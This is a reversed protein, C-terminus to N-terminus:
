HGHDSHLTAWTYVLGVLGAGASVILPTYSGLRAAIQTAGPGGLGYYIYGTLGAVVTGLLVRIGGTVSMTVSLGVSFALAAMLSLGFLSVVFDMTDLRGAPEDEAVSPQRTDGTEGDPLNTSADPPDGSGALPALAVSTSFTDGPAEAVPPVAATPTASALASDTSQAQQASDVVVIQFTVSRMANVSSATIQIRGPRSPQLSTFAIGDAAASTQRTQLNESLFMVTFEVPTGDPVRNGNRDVIPSTRLVLRDGVEVTLTDSTTLSNTPLDGNLSDLELLITQLPDPATMELIDYGVAPLSIPLAGPLATEQFLARAVADVYPPTHSYVAYYATFKSIETASLYVPAAMAMVVLEAREVFAAETELLDRLIASSEVGPSVDLMVFVIWDVDRLVEAIRRNTRFQYDEASAGEFTGHLYNQLQEFSFSVVQEPQIQAGAYPGYMREIAVELANVSIIPSAACYSCQQELRVDTFIVITDNRAPPAPLSQRRPAVLTVGQQAIAYLQATSQGVTNINTAPAQVNELSLDGNYLALKLSLIRELSQDVRARFVPDEEYQEAFFEIVDIVNEFQDEGPTPGFDTLYLLDNGALFAERAVQRHPFPTLNYHRRISRTGLPSSVVLGTERWTRFMDLRFLQDAAQEDICIPRTISRINEGQYRINACQIGDARMLPDQAGGTVAHYPILDFKRLEEVARPLVPIEQDPKTDALGLGPFDQAIVAIRGKSGEHVGAVYAQGMEGVWYPEGGFSNVGLDLTRETPLRQYVDLAPGLLMNIGMASLESGAIQGVKRVSEPNWTAGLAMSSPLPTTGVVIQSGSLGEGAHTTAIFLPIYARPGERDATRQAAQEALQQLDGNLSQVLRPTNVQGNINDNAALLVVGGINYDSILRNISTQPDLYTGEFTVMMLQGVREIPTLSAKLREIQQDTPDSQRPGGGAVVPAAGRPLLGTIVILLLFFRLSRTLLRVFSWENRRSGM